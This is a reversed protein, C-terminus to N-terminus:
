QMFELVKELLAAPPSRNAADFRWLHMLKFACQSADEGNEQIHNKMSVVRLHDLTLAVDDLSCVRCGRAILSLNSSFCAEVSGGPIHFQDARRRRHRNKKGKLLDV